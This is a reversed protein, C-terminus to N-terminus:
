KQTFLFYYIVRFCRKLLNTFFSISLEKNIFSNHNKSYTFVLEKEVRSISNKIKYKFYLNM